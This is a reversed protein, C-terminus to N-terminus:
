IHGRMTYILVYLNSSALNPYKGFSIRSSDWISYELLFDTTNNFLPILFYLFPIM